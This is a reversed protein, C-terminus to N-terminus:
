FNQKIIYKMTVSSGCHTKEQLLQLTPSLINHILALQDGRNCLTVHIWKSILNEDQSIFINRTENSCWFYFQMSRLLYKRLKMQSPTSSTIAQLQSQIFKNCQLHQLDNGWIVTLTTIAYRWIIGLLSM